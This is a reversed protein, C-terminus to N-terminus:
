KLFTKIRKIELHIIQDIEAEPDYKKATKFSKTMVFGRGQVYKYIYIIYQHPSWITERNSDDIDANYDLLRVPDAIILVSKNQLSPFFRYTGLAGVYTNSPLINMFKQKGNDFVWLSLYHPGGGIAYSNTELLVGKQPQKQEQFKITQLSFFIESTNPTECQKPLESNQKLFCLKVPLVPYKKGANEEYAVVRWESPLSMNQGIYITKVTKYDAALSRDAAFGCLLGFIIVSWLLIYLKTKM